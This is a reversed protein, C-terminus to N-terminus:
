DLIQVDDGLRTKGLKKKKSNILHLARCSGLRDVLAVWVARNTRKPMFTLKTM